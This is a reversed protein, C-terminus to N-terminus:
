APEGVILLRVDRNTTRAERFAQLVVDSRKASTLFGFLGIDNKRGGKPVNQPEYPHPVVHIPTRVGLSQLRDAAYHNHVIVASSRNAIEISAPLLFNGMESHLGAARGRAWAAGAEGHNAEVAAVYGDVAGAGLAVGGSLHHPGIEPVGDGGPDE